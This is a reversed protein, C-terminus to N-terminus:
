VFKQELLKKSVNELSDRFEFKNKIKKYDDLNKISNLNNQKLQRAISLVSHLQM